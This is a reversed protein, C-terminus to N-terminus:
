SVGHLKCNVWQKQTTVASATGRKRLMRRLSFPTNASTPFYFRNWTTPFYSFIHLFIQITFFRFFFRLPVFFDSHQFFRFGFDSHLFIDSASLCESDFNPFYFRLRILFRSFIQFLLFDSHCFDLCYLFDSCVGFIQVFFIQLFDSISFFRFLLFFIQVLWSVPNQINLLASM